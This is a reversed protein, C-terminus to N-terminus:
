PMLCLWLIRNCSAIPAFRLTGHPRRRLFGVKSKFWQRHGDILSILAIPTQCINSALFTLDDFALEPITDLVQYASLAELRQVENDPYPASQPM